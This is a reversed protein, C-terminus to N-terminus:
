AAQSTIPASLLEPGAVRYIDSSLYFSKLATLLLADAPEATKQLDDVESVLDKFTVHKKEANSKDVICDGAYRYIAYQKLMRQMREDQGHGWEYNALQNRLFVVKSNRNAEVKNEAGHWIAEGLNEIDDFDLNYINQEIDCVTPEFFNNVNLAAFETLAKKASETRSLIKRGNTFCPSTAMTYWSVSEKGKGHEFKDLDVWLASRHNADLLMIQRKQCAWSNQALSIEEWVEGRQKGALQYCDFKDLRLGFRKQFVKALEITLRVDDKSEHTQIGSLTGFAKSLSELKFSKGRKPNDSLDLYPFEPASVALWKATLFLDLYSIKKSFYPNLGNRILSTRLYPIDFKSSNFGVLYLKQSRGALGTLYDFIQKCAQKESAAALTQHELVNIRNALIAGPMPLQLKSIKVLGSCESIEHFDEDVAIFCYNLIQGITNIDSTELDFFVYM